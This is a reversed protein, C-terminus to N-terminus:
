DHFESNQESGTKLIPDVETDDDTDQHQVSNDTPVLFLLSGVDDGTQFTIDGHLSLDDTVTNFHFDLSTFKNRTVNYTKM